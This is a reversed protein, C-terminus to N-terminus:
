IYIDLSTESTNSEFESLTVPKDSTEMTKRLGELFIGPYYRIYVVVAEKWNVLRRELHRQTTGKNFANNFGKSIENCAM